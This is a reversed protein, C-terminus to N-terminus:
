GNRDERKKREARLSLFHQLFAGFAALVARSGTENRLEALGGGGFCGAAVLWWEVGAGGGGM